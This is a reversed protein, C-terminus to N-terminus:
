INAPSWKKWFFVRPRKTHKAHIKQCPWTNFQCECCVFVFKRMFYSGRYRLWNTIANYLNRKMPMQDFASVACVKRDGFLWIWVCVMQIANFTWHHECEARNRISKRTALIEFKGNSASKSSQHSHVTTQIAKSLNVREFFKKTKLM